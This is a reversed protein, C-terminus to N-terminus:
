FLKFKWPIKKETLVYSYIFYFFEYESKTKPPSLALLIFFDAFDCRTLYSVPSELLVTYQLYVTTLFNALTNGSLFTSGNFFPFYSTIFSHFRNYAPTCHAPHLNLAFQAPACISRSRINLPLASWAFACILRSRM